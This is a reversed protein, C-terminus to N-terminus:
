NGVEWMAEVDIQKAALVMDIFERVAGKGGEKSTIYDARDRIQQPSHGVTVRVGVAKMAQLDVLDDGMFSIEDMSLQYKDMLETIIDAKNTYGQYLEDVELEKARSDTAASYRGSVLAIKLGAMKAMYFALGDAIHFQKYEAGNGGMIVTNDTLIGDVDFILLKLKKLKDDITM